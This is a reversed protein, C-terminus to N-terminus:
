APRSATTTRGTAGTLPSSASPKAKGLRVRAKQDRKESRQRQNKDKDKKRLRDGMPSRWPACRAAAHYRRVRAPATGLPVSYRCTTLRRILRLQNQVGRRGRRAISECCPM